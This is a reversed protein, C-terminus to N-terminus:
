AAVPYAGYLSTNSERAVDCDKLGLLAFCNCSFINPCGLFLARLVSMGVIEFEKPHHHQTVCFKSGFDNYNFYKPVLEFPQELSIPRWKQTSDSANCNYVALFDRRVRTICTGIGNMRLLLGDDTDIARFTAGM